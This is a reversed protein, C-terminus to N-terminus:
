RILLEHAPIEQPAPHPRTNLIPLDNVWDSHIRWEHPFAHCGSCTGGAVPIHSHDLLNLIKLTAALGTPLYCDAPTVGIGLVNINKMGLLFIVSLLDDVGADNDFFLRKMM